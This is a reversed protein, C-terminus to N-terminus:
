NLRETYADFWTKDYLQMGMSLGKWLEKDSGDINRRLWFGVSTSVSMYGEGSADVTEAFVNGYKQDLYTVGDFDKYQMQSLYEETGEQLNITAHTYVYGQVM